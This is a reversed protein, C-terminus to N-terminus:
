QGWLSRGLRRYLRSFVVELFARPTPRGGPFAGRLADPPCNKMMSAIVAEVREGVQAETLGLRRAVVPYAREPDLGSLEPRSAMALMAETVCRRGPLYDAVGLERLVARTERPIEPSPTTPVASVLARAMQEDDPEVPTIRWDRKEETM